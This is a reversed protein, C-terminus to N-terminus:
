RSSHTTESAVRMSIKRCCVAALSPMELPRESAAFMRRWHGRGSMQTSPTLMATAQEAVARASYRPAARPKLRSKPRGTQAPAGSM